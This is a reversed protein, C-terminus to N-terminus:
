CLDVDDDLDHCEPRQATEPRQESEVPECEATLFSTYSYCCEFDVYCHLEAWCVDAPKTAATRGDTRRGAWRCARQGYTQTNTKNPHMDTEKGAQRSPYIYTPLDTLIYASAKVKSVHQETRTHVFRCLRRKRTKLPVVNRTHKYFKTSYVAGDLM